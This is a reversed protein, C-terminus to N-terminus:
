PWYQGMARAESTRASRQVGSSMRLRINPASVNVAIAEPTGCIDRDISTVRRRSSCRAPTILM